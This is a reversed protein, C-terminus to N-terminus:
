RDMELYPPGYHLIQTFGISYYQFKISLVISINSSLVDFCMGYVIWVLKFKTEFKSELIDENEQYWNYVVYEM